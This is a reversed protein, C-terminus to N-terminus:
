TTSRSSNSLCSAISAAFTPTSTRSFVAATDSSFSPLRTTPTFAFANPSGNSIRAGTVIPASPNSLWTPRHAPIGVFMAIRSM